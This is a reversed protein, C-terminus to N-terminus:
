LYAEQRQEIPLGVLQFYGSYQGSQRLEKLSSILQATQKM